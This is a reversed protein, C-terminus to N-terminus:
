VRSRRWSLFLVTFLLGIAMSVIITIINLAEGPLTYLFLSWSLVGLVALPIVGVRELQPIVLYGWIFVWFAPGVVNTYIGIFAAALDTSFETMFDAVLPAILTM